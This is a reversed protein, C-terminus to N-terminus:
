RSYWFSGNGVSVKGQFDCIFHLSNKSLVLQQWLFLNIYHSFFGKQSQFWNRDSFSFFTVCVLKPPLFCSEEKESKIWIIKKNLNTKSWIKPLCVINMKKCFSETVWFLNTRKTPKQMQWTALNFFKPCMKSRKLYKWMNWYQLFFWQEFVKAMNLIYIDKTFLVKPLFFWASPTKLYPKPRLLCTPM